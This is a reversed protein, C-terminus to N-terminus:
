VASHLIVSCVACISVEGKGMRNLPCSLQLLALQAIASSEELAERAGQEKVALLQEGTLRVTLERKVEQTELHGRAPEVALVWAVKLELRRGSESLRKSLKLITVKKHLLRAQRLAPTTKPREASTSSRLDTYPVDKCCVPAYLDTHPVDEHTRLSVSSTSAEAITSSVRGARVRVETPQQVAPRRIKENQCENM